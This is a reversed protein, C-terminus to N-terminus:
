VNHITSPSPGMVSGRPLRSLWVAWATLLDWLKAPEGSRVAWAIMGAWLVAYALIALIGTCLLPLESRSLKGRQMLMLNMCTLALGALNAPPFPVLCLGLGLLVVRDHGRLKAMTAALRALAEQELASQM